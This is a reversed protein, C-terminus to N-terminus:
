FPKTFLRSTNYIFEFELEFLLIYLEDFELEFLVLSTLLIRLVTFAGVALLIIVFRKLFLILLWTTLSAAFYPMVFRLAVLSLKFLLPRVFIGSKTKM